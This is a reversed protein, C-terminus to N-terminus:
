APPEYARRAVEMWEQVTFIVDAGSARAHWEELLAQRRHLHDLTADGQRTGTARELMMYVHKHELHTVSIFRNAWARVVTRQREKRRELPETPPPATPRPPRPEYGARRERDVRLLKAVINVMAEAMGEYGAAAITQRADALDAQSYNLGDTDYVDDPEAEADLPTFITGRPDGSGERPNGDDDDDEDTMADLIHDREDKIQQVFEVLKADKPIFVWAAQDELDPLMRVFRGVAQRFYLDTLINTAYVGVMLRKIDVGESVMRVAVLWRSVGAEFDRIVASADPDDSIAIAPAEGTIGTLLTAIARAHAQDIAIVLGGANAAYSRRADTLRANAERLVAPLWDGRPDLATRLRRAAEDDPVDDGFTATREGYRDTWWTMRGEYSPFFVNRCYGDRLAERYGYPFDPACRGDADYTVFPIADTDSRFPTGTLCLRWPSAAFAEWVGRGWSRRNGAHHPEDFIVLSRAAHRAHIRPAAAVQQYTVVVGHYDEAELGHDNAFRAQLDIGFEAAAKRWQERLHTTPVVVVIRDVTGNLLHDCAVMLGFKTKGAGPTVSALFDRARLAQYKAMAALQWRRPDALQVLGTTTAMGNWTAGKEENCPACLAQGNAIATMGGRAWPRVHDAHWGVRLEVRCVACAGGAALYLAVREQRNFKRRGM